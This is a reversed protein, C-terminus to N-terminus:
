EPTLEDLAAVVVALGLLTVVAGGFGYLELGAFGGAVTAFPGIRVSRREVYPQLVTAELVQYLVFVLAIWIADAPARAAALGVIPLAGVATGVLPVLDWLAVWLALPARGPVHALGALGYAVAGALASMAISGRAYGFGRSVAARAVREWRRRREEDEIQAFASRALQPASVLLFLALIGTVLFAAGRTAAARIAAAPTGGQLRAPAEQVLLRTREALRMDRFAQHYRGARELRAAALPAERQLQDTSRAVGRVLAYTVVSVSGVALLVVVLVALSRRM